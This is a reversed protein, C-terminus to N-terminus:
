HLFKSKLGDFVKRITQLKAIQIRFHQLDNADWQGLTWIGEPSSGVLLGRHEPVREESPEVILFPKKIVAKCRQQRLYDFLLFFLDSSSENNNASFRPPVLFLHWFQSNDCYISIQITLLQYSLDLNM